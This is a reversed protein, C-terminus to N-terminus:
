DEEKLPLRTRRFIVNGCPTMPPGPMPCATRTEGVGATMYDVLQQDGHQFLLHYIMHDCLRRCLATTEKLNLVETPYFSDFVIKDGAKYVPCTGVIEEVEYIVRYRPHKAM